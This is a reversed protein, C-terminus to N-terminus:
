SCRRLFSWFQFGDFESLKDVEKARKRVRRPDLRRCADTITSQALKRYVGERSRATETSIRKDHSVTARVAGTLPLTSVNVRYSRGDSGTTQLSYFGAEISGQVISPTRSPSSCAALLICASVVTLRRLMM